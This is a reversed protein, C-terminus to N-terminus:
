CSKSRKNHMSNNEINNNANKSIKYQHKSSIKSKSLNSNHPITSKIYAFNSLLPRQIAVKREQKLSQDQLIQYRNLTMSTNDSIKLSKIDSDFQNNGNHRQNQQEQRQQRKISIFISLVTGIIFGVLFCSVGIILSLLVHPSRKSKDDIDRKLRKQLYSQQEPHCEYLQNYYRKTLSCTAILYELQRYCKDIYIGSTNPEINLRNHTNDTWSLYSHQHSM